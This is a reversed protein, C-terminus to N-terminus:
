NIKKINLNNPQNLSRVMNIFNLKADDKNKFTSYKNILEEVNWESILNQRPLYLGIDILNHENKEDLFVYGLLQYLMDEKVIPKVTTKLDLLYNGNRRLMYLDADAGGINSSLAFTPNYMFKIKDNNFVENKSLSLDFITKLDDIMVDTAKVNHIYNVSLVNGNRYVGEIKSLKYLDTVLDKFNIKDFVFQFNDYKRKMEYFIVSYDNKAFRMPLLYEIPLGIHLILLYETIHGMDAWPYDIFSKPKITYSGLLGANEEKIFNEFNFNKKFFHVFM